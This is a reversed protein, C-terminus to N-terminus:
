GAVGAPCPEARGAAEAEIRNRGNAKARYLAADARAVLDKLHADGPELQAMGISISLHLDDAIDSCDLAAIATRLREAIPLAHDLRTRPLLVLFEEGGTRGLLDFHRLADRCTDAIRALVQDGTLHGHRDNVQKFHDVDLALASLPERAARAREIAQEGAQEISRRNAVGTLPDTSAMERLRRMRVIQRMILGGLILLLVGGLAMATWQWRRAQLLAEVQRDRLAKERALRDNELQQRDADFQSRLLQAQQGREAGTISEHLDIYRELDAFAAENRGLAQESRARARYLLALYRRNDSRELAASAREYLALAQAHRGLGAHAQGMRLALMDDNARDGLEEFEAQARQLLRLARDFDKRLIYPWAMALHISAIDYRSDHERALALARRYIALADEVRGQDEALYGQQLLNAIQQAWDGLARAYAENQVLYERAKGLEGMRRYSIAIDLLLSEADAKAGARQYLQQAAVLDPIARSQEGLLSHTSGRLSLGDALLRDDGIRRAIAIGAEYEVMAAPAGHLQDLATARCYHFSAQGVGDELAKARALGDNAFALQAEPQNLFDWDCRLARYRLDRVPDGPPVMRELEALRRLVAEQSPEAWLETGQLRKLLADFEAAQTERTATPAPAPPVPDAALAGGHQLLLAAAFLWQLPYRIRLPNG